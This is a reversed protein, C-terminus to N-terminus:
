KSVVVVSDEIGCQSLLKLIDHKPIFQRVKYKQTNNNNNSIIDFM